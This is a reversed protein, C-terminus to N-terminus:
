ANLIYTPLHYRERLHHHRSTMKTCKSSAITIRTITKTMMIQHYQSRMIFPKSERNLTLTEWTSLVYIIICIKSVDKLDLEYMLELGTQVNTWETFNAALPDLPYRENWLQLALEYFRSFDYLKPSTIRLFTSLTFFSSKSTVPSDQSIM